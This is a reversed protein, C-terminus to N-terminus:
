ASPVAVQTVAGPPVAVPRLDTRPPADLALGTTTAPDIGRVGIRHPTDGSNYLEVIPRGAETAPVYRAAIDAPLGLQGDSYYLVRLWPARGYHVGLGGLAPMFLAPMVYASSTGANSAVDCAHDVAFDPGFDGSNRRLAQRFTADALAAVGTLRVPDGTLLYSCPGVPWQALYAADLSTDGTIHRYKPLHVGCHPDIGAIQSVGDGGQRIWWDMVQRLGQRLSDDRPLFRLVDLMTMMLDHPTHLPTAAKYRWAPVRKDAARTEPVLGLHELERRYYRHFRWDAMIEPQAAFARIRDADIRKFELCVDQSPAATRLREEWTLWYDRCLELYRDNGTAEYAAAAIALVRFHRTTQFDYPPRHYPSRTGLFYSRFVHADWDYWDQVAPHCNGLHEAADEVMAVTRTDTIDLYLVNLLFQTFAEATHTIYDGDENADYGHHFHGAATVADHWDDRFRKLFRAIRADGNLCYTSVFSRTYGGAEDLAHGGRQGFLRAFGETEYRSIETDIWDELSRRLILQEAAWVPVACSPRAHEIHPLPM